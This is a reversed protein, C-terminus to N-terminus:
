SMGMWDELSKVGGEKVPPPSTSPAPKLDLNSSPQQVIKAVFARLRDLSSHSAPVLRSILADPTDM